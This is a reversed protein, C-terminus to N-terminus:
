GKVGGKNFVTRGRKRGRRAERPLKGNYPRLYEETTASLDRYYGRYEPPLLAAIRYMMEDTMQTLQERTLRGEGPVFIFPKGMVMKVKTRRLRRLQQWFREQGWIAIPLVPAGAKVALYALGDKGKQLANTKSRTGEPAAMLVKGQELVKLSTRLATRDVEGRRIPVTGYLKFILALFPNYYNEVKSMGMVERDIFAAGVVTDVFIMHNQATILPGEEPINELGEVEYDLLIVMIFRLVRNAFRQLWVSSM